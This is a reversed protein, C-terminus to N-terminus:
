PSKHFYNTILYLFLLIDFKPVYYNPFKGLFNVSDLSKTTAVSDVDIHTKRFCSWASSAGKKKIICPISAVLVLFILGFNM